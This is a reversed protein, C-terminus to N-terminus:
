GMSILQGNQASDMASSAVFHRWQPSDRSSDARAAGSGFLHPPSFLGWVIRTTPIRAITNPASPRSPIANEIKVIVM